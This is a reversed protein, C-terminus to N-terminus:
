NAVEAGVAMAFDADYWPRKGENTLEIARRLVAHPSPYREVPLGLLTDLPKMSEQFQVDEVQVIKDWEGNTLLIVDVQPMRLQEFRLRLDRMSQMFANVDCYTDGTTCFRASPTTGKM